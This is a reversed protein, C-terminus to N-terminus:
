GIGLSDSPSWDGPAPPSDAAAAHGLRTKAARATERLLADDADLCRDLDPELERLLLTGAAYAGCSRIWPDESQLLERVGEVQSRVEAGVIRNATRVREDATVSPDVLPLLLSRLSPNLIHELLELANARLERNGSEIGLYATYVDGDPLLLGILRFIREKEQHMSQQLARVVPGDVEIAAGLTGLIQYSRYHGMIEAVMVTEVIHRDILLSPNRARLKNLAAIVKYRLAPDSELLSEVLVQQADPSGIGVLVGPIERRIEVAVSPDALRAALTTVVADGMDALVSTAVDGLDPDGLRGLIADVLDQRGLKSAAAMAARTVEPEPDSLLAELLGEFSDPLMGLLKAAEIRSTAGEPGGEQAMGELILAAAELNQFRGPRGLFAIMGARISFDPFDGLDQIRDVPDVNGLHALYLLAETRTELDPDALLSEARDLASADGAERLMGLARTRVESRPHSVLSPLAPHTMGKHQMEFLHLAFLIEAPDGAELDSMVADTATRDLMVASARESDLRHQRLTRRIVQVYGRQLAVAVAVWGIIVVVTMAALGRLGLHAGPLGMFGMTALGLAIGGVGDALRNIITDITMKVNWRSEAPLPLFLLEYTSKDISFRLGQDMANTALVSWFGPYLLILFAGSGLALPLTLITVALGFRRLVTGTLALQMVLAAIGTGLSFTGYFETLRDADAAFRERAVIHLQFQTWQTVIAVLFVTVAILFLYRTRFIQAATERIPPARRQARDTQRDAPLQRAAAAVLGAAGVILAALVLLLNITGGVPQVLFRALLGGAVAGFSAGSAVLPFLRKAQRSDFFANALAWGQVPAIIAFCNVWVYFAGPLLPSPFWRLLWWFALVNFAFFLLTGIMVAQEGLRATLKTYVPVFVSLAVPVAVYVYVLGYADFSGLFLGSRIPKALLFAAVVLLTYGFILLLPRIEGPRVDVLHRLTDRM